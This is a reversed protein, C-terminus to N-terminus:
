PLCTDDSNVWGIIEGRAKRLAKNVANTQGADKESVWDIHPYKKLITVTEDTSGGDMVVHELNPYNQAAISQITEEIFRGQNFSPTVISLLPLGGKITYEQNRM